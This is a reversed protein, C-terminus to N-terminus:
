CDSHTRHDQLPRSTPQKHERQKQRRSRIPRDSPFPELAVKAAIIPIAIILGIAGAILLVVLVPVAIPYVVFGIAIPKIKSKWNTKM